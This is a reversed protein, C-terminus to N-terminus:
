AYNKRKKSTFQKISVVEWRDQGTRRLPVTAESGLLLPRLYERADVWHGPAPVDAESEVSVVRVGMEQLAHVRIGGDFPRLRGFELWRGSWGASTLGVAAAAGVIGNGKGLACSPLDGLAEMVETREVFRWSAQRGLEVLPLSATTAAV